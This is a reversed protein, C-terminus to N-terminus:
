TLRWSRGGQNYVVRYECLTSFVCSLLNLVFIIWCLSKVSLDLSRFGCTSEMLVEATMQISLSVFGRPFVHSTIEYSVEPKRWPRGPVHRIVARHASIVPYLLLARTKRQDNPNQLSVLICSCAFLHFFLDCDFTRKRSYQECVCAPQPVM